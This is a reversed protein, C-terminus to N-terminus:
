CNIGYENVTSAMSIPHNIGYESITSAM